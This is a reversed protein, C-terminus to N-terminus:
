NHDIMAVELRRVDEDDHQVAQCGQMFLELRERTSRKTGDCDGTFGLVEAFVRQADQTPNSM